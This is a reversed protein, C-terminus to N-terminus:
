GAQEEVPPAPTPQPAPGPIGKAEAAAQDLKAVTRAPSASVVTYAEVDRMVVANAGIVAGDGITVGGLIVAHTGISVNDGIIVYKPNAHDPQPGIVSGLHLRCNKGIVVYKGVGVGVGHVLYLGPGITALPNLEAGSSRIGWERFLLAVPLLGKAALLHAIRYIVVARVNSSVVMKAIARIWYRAPSFHARFNEHTTAEVDARVVEWFPPPEPVPPREPLTM